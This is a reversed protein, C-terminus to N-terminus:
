RVARFLIGLAALVSLGLVFPRAGARDVFERAWGSAAFGALVPPVLWATLILEARGYRGVAALAVLSVVAGIVFHGSLTGRIRPGSARQYLLAMPPGGISSLTGMFGSLAGASSSTTPNPEIQLSSLSLAVGFLVLGAFLFDFNEPPLTVWVFAAALTGVIRGAFAFGLGAYDIAERERFAILLTLALSSAMLPGPVLPPYILFILPAAILGLGFGVSSQVCSGIAVLAFTALAEGPELPFSLPAEM